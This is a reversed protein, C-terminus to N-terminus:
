TMLSASTHQQQKKADGITKFTADENVKKHIIMSLVDMDLVFLYPSLPDGKQLGRGSQFFGELEGNINISFSPSTICARIWRIVKCPFGMLDLLDLIFEWRVTDFAKLIDVKITSRSMTDKRHYNHM